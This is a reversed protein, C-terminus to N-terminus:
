RSVGLHKASQREFRRRITRNSLPKAVTEGRAHNAADLSASSANQRKSEALWQQHKRAAKKGVWSAGGVNFRWASGRSRRAPTPSRYPTNLRKPHLVAQGLAGLWRGIFSRSLSGM